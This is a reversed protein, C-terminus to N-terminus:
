SSKKDEAFPLTPVPEGDPAPLVFYGEIARFLGYAAYDCPSTKGTPSPTTGLDSARDPLYRGICEQYALQPDAGIQQFDVLTQIHGCMPCRFKWDKPDDGFRRKAEALWEALTIAGDSKRNM